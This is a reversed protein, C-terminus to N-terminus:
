MELAGTRTHEGGAAGRSRKGLPESRGGLAHRIERQHSERVFHVSREALARFQMLSAALVVLRHSLKCHGRLWAGVQLQVAAEVIHAARGLTTEESTTCQARDRPILFRNAQSCAFTLWQSHFCSLSLSLTHTFAHTFVHMHTHIHINQYMHQEIAVVRTAIASQSCISQLVYYTNRASQICYWLFFTASKCHTYHACIGMRNSTRKRKMGPENAQTNNAKPQHERHKGNLNSSYWVRNSEKRVGRRPTDVHLYIAQAQAQQEREHPPSHMRYRDMYNSRRV